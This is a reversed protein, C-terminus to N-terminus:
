FLRGQKDDIIKGGAELEAPDFTTGGTFKRPKPKSAEICAPCVGTGDPRVDKWNDADAASTVGQCGKLDARCYIFGSM